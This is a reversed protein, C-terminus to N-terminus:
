IIQSSEVYAGRLTKMDCVGEYSTKSDRRANKHASTVDVHVPPLYSDFAGVNVESRSHLPTHFREHQIVM